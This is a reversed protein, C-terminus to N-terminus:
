RWVQSVRCLKGVCSTEDFTGISVRYLDDTAIKPVEPIVGDGGDGPLNPSPQNLYRLEVDHYSEWRNPRMVGLAPHLLRRFTGPNEM